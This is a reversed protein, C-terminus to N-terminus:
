WPSGCLARAMMNLQEQLELLGLERELEALAPEGVETEWRRFVSRREESTDILGSVGRGEGALRVGFVRDIHDRGDCAGASTTV